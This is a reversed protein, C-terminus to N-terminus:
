KAYIVTSKVHKDYYPRVVNTIPLEDWLNMKSIYFAARDPDRIFANNIKKVLTKRPSLNILGPNVKVFDIIQKDINFGLKSALYIARIIRNKSSTLTIEAPLCTKIIKSNLDNFGNGTIDITDKLSFPLLLSNCTFDRSFMEKQLSTPNTIGIKFLHKEIDPVNYNSSFDLKLKGVFISSHGDDFSKSSVKYKSSLSDYVKSSLLKSTNDGTTIDIDEINDLRNLYRDRPVGGCIMPESAGVEKYIHAM